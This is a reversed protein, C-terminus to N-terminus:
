FPLKDGRALRSSGPEGRKPRRDAALQFGAQRRARASSQSLPPGTNRRSTAYGRAPQKRRPAPSRRTVTRTVTRTAQTTQQAPGAKAAGRTLVVVGVLMLVSGGVIEGVRILNKTNTIWDFFNSAGGAISGLTNAVAEGQVVGPIHQAGAAFTSGLSNANQNLGTGLVGAGANGTELLNAVQGTAAAYWSAPEGSAEVAAAAQGSPANPNSKFYSAYSPLIALTNAYPNQVGGLQNARSVYGPSLLQFLGAAGSSSNVASANLGSEAYAAGVLQTAQEPTLNYPKGEALRIIIEANSKETSTLQPTAM